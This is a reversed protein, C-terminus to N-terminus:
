SLSKGHKGAHNKRSWRSLSPIGKNMLFAMNIVLPNFCGIFEAERDL